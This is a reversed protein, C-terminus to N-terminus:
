SCTINCNDDWVLVVPPTCCLTVNISRGCAVTSVTTSVKGDPCGGGGGGTGPEDNIPHQIIGNSQINLYELTTGITKSVRLTVGNPLKIDMRVRDGVIDGRYEHRAMLGNGPKDSGGVNMSGILTNTEANFHEVRLARTDPTYIELVVMNSTTSAKRLTVFYSESQRLERQEVLPKLTQAPAFVCGVALLSILIRTLM